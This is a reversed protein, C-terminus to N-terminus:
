ERKLDLRKEHYFLWLGNIILIVSLFFKKM